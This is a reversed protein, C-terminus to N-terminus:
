FLETRLISYFELIIIHPLHKKSEIESVVKEKWKENTNKIFALQISKNNLYIQTKTKAKKLLGAIAVSSTLGLDCNHLDM